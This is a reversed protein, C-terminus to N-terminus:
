LWGETQYWAITKEVGEKLRYKPEFGIEEKLPTIDCSWNRQKMIRYKDSNFTTAKQSLAAIKENIAAAPRVLFLPIRLKLVKRKNLAKRVIENFQADTHIDGDAVFFEKRRTGKDILSFIVNALDEVYIFSLLQKKFGAEVELGNKMAKMLILYDKDRPGYVGTPRLILYPFNQISKLYNEAKLKSLGYATNPSPTQGAHMPTYSTEDGPGMASLSSMYVFTDPINGTEILADVLNETHQRNVIDFDSKHLAKTLGAIHIIHDIRDHKDTFQRIQEKLKEKNGYRLDIFGIREDNLYRRSSGKRIGAWTEYGLDLAKDVVTSGIFGSAGTILIKKQRMSKEM